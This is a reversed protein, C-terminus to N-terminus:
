ANWRVFSYFFVDELTFSHIEKKQQLDIVKILGYTASIILYERGKNKFIMGGFNYPNKDDTQISYNTKAKYQGILIKNKGNFLIISKISKM